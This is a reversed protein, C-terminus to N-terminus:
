VALQCCGLVDWRDQQKLPFDDLVNWLFRGGGMADRVFPRQEGAKILNLLEPVDSLSFQKTNIAKKFYKESGRLIM